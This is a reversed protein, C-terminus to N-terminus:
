NVTLSLSMAILYCNLIVSFYMKWFQGSHLGKFSSAVGQLLFNFFKTARFTPSRSLFSFTMGRYVSPWAQRFHNRNRGDHLGYSLRQGGRLDSTWNGNEQRHGVLGGLVQDHWGPLLFSQWNIMKNWFLFYISALYGDCSPPVTESRCGAVRPEFGLCFM